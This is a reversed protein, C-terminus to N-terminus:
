VEMNFETGCEPCMCPMLVRARGEHAHEQKDSARDIDLGSVDARATSPMTRPEFGKESEEVPEAVWIDMGWDKLEANDWENALNDWDWQGFSM